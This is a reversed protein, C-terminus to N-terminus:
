IIVDIEIEDNLINTLNSINIDINQKDIKSYLIM